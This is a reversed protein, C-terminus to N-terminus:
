SKKPAADPDTVTVVGAKRKRLAQGTPRWTRARQSSYGADRLM